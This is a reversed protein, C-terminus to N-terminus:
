VEVYELSNIFNLISEAVEDIPLELWNNKLNDFNRIYRDSNLIDKLENYINNMCLIM